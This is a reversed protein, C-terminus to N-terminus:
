LVSMSYACLTLMCCVSSLFLPAASQVQMWCTSAAPLAPGRARLSLTMHRRCGTSSIM